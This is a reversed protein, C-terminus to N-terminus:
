DRPEADQEDSDLAPPLIEVQNADCFAQFDRPLLVLEVVLEKWGVSFEFEIFGNGRQGTVRVYRKSLDCAPLVPACDDAKYPPTISASHSSPLANM